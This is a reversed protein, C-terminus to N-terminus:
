ELYLGGPKRTCSQSSLSDINTLFFLVKEPVFFLSACIVIALGFRKKPLSDPIEDINQDKLSLYPSCGISVSQLKDLNAFQAFTSSLQSIKCEM